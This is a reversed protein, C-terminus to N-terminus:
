LAVPATAVEMEGPALTVTFAVTSSPVPAAAALVTTVNATVSVVSAVTLGAVANVSLWPIACTVRDAVPLPTPAVDIVALAVTVPAVPGAVADPTVGVPGTVALPWALKATMLPAVDPVGDSVMCSVLEFPVAIM